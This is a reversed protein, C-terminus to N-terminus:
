FFIINPKIPIIKSSDRYCYGKKMCKYFSNIEKLNNNFSKKDIKIFTKKTTEIIKNQIDFLNSNNNIIIELFKSEHLDNTNNLIKNINKKITEESLGVTESTTNYRADYYYLIKDIKSLHRIDNKARNIWDNDEGHNINKYEYKKVISSKWVHVHCAPPINKEFGFKVIKDEMNPQNICSWFTVCDTNPNNYLTDMILKVYDDSIRDDDDIFCVYEGQIIDIMNQRKRGITRKKNDFLSILEINSYPEIQKLLIKILPLYFLELRNPLTPILISLKITM